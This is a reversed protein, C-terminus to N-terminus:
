QGRMIIRTRKVVKKMARKIEPNKLSYIIPNMFPTVVFYLLSLYLNVDSHSNDSPIIYVTILTGYYTCVTTLHSSCTSFVKKRGTSSSINVIIIFIYIYTMIIFAFPCLVIIISFIFDEMIFVSTDSSSLEVIPHLDCVFHDITNLGCFEFQSISVMEISVVIVVSSWSVFILQVCRKPNMLFTYHLPNCIALYRDYSMVALLSCPITVFIGFCFLQFLCVIVSIVAGEKLIIDLMFPVVTTTLLLDAVALHKLFYFMPIQLHDIFSVLLIILLNGVVIVTYIVLLVIFFLIRFNNLNCFGLLHFETVKTKNKGCM